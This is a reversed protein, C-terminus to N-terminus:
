FYNPLELYIDIKLFDKVSVKIPETMQLKLSLSTDIAIIFVEFETRCVKRM